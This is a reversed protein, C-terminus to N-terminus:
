IDNSIYWEIIIYHMTPKQLAIIVTPICPLVIDSHTMIVRLIDSSVSCRVGVAQMHDSLLWQSVLESSRNNVLIVHTYTYACLCCCASRTQSNTGTAAAVLVAVRSNRNLRVCRTGYETVNSCASHTYQHYLSATSIYSWMGMCTRIYIATCVYICTYMCM